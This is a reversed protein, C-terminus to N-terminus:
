KAIIHMWGGKFSKLRMLNATAPRLFYYSNYHDNCYEIAIQM